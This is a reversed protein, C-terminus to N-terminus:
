LLPVLGRCSWGLIAHFAHGLDRSIVAWSERFACVMAQLRRQIKTQLPYKM